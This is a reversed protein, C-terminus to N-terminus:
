DDNLVMHCTIGPLSNTIKVLRLYDGFTVKLKTKGHECFSFYTLMTVDCPGPSVKLRILKKFKRWDIISAFFSDFDIVYVNQGTSNLIRVRHLGSPPNKLISEIDGSLKCQLTVQRGHLVLEYNQPFVYSVKAEYPPPDM